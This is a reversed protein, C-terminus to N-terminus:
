AHVRANSHARGGVAVASRLDQALQTAVVQEFNIAVNIDADSRAAVKAPM